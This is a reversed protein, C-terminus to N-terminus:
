SVGSEDALKAIEPSLALFIRNKYSKKENGTFWGSQPANIFYM